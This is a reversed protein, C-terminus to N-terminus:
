AAQRRRRAVVKKYHAKKGSSKREQIENYKSKFKSLAQGSSLVEEVLTRKREKGTLRASYFETPGEVLTGIQSFEPFPDRRTDKKFHQKGMALVSRLKIMQLDRKTQPDNSTRPLNFWDAGANERPANKGKVALKPTRITLEKPQKDQEKPTETAPAVVTTTSAVAVVTTHNNKKVLASTNSGNSALRSEAEALLKDIQDDSLEM